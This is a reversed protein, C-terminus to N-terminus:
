GNLAPHVYLLFSFKVQGPKPNSGRVESKSALHGVLHAVTPAIVAGPLRHEYQVGPAQKGPWTLALIGQSMATTPMTFNVTVRYKDTDVQECSCDDPFFMRTVCFGHRRASFPTCFPVPQGFTGNILTKYEFRPWLDQKFSYASSNGSVELELTTYDMGVVQYYPACSFSSKSHILKIEPDAQGNLRAATTYPIDRM